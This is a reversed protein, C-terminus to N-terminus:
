STPCWFRLKTKGSREDVANGDPVGGCRGIVERSGENDEDCTVLAADIGQDRAILLSQRLIETAFGQRRFAPRVAYGIHGGVSALRPTLVHRISVRGVLDDGVVAVRFTAPVFGPHAVRGAEEECLEAIFSALDRDVAWQM